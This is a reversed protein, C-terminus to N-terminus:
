KVRRRALPPGGSPAGGTGVGTCQYLRCYFTERITRNGEPGDRQWVQLDGTGTGDAMGEVSFQLSATMNFIELEVLQPDTAVCSISKRSIAILSHDCIPDVTDNYLARCADATRCLDCAHGRWGQECECYHLVNPDQVNYNTMNGHVCDICGCSDGWGCTNSVWGATCNCASEAGTHTLARTSARACAHVYLHSDTSVALTM